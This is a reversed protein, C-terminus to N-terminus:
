TGSHVFPDEAIDQLCLADQRLVHDDDWNVASAESIGPGAITPMKAKFSLLGEVEDSRLLKRAPHGVQMGGEELAKLLGMRAVRLNGHHEVAAGTAMTAHCRGHDQPVDQM